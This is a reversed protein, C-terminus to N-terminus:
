SNVSNSTFGLMRFIGISFSSAMKLEACLANMGLMSLRKFPKLSTIPHQLFISSADLARGKGLLKLFAQWTPLTSSSVM